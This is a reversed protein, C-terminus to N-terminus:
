RTRGPAATGGGHPFAAPEEASPFADALWAYTRLEDFLSRGLRNHFMHVHSVLIQGPVTATTARVAEVLESLATHWAGFPGHQTPDVPKAAGKTVRCMEDLQGETCGFESAWARWAAKSNTYFAAQEAPGGLAAAASVTARLALVSRAQPSSVHPLLALVLESSLQFLRETRPMLGAGGYRETEPEYVARHVGPPHLAQVDRDGGSENRALLRAESRYAEESIRSEEAVPQGATELRERLLREVRDYETPSLDGVRLRLHPGGQWYRIFFWPAGGLSRVTPGIVDRAVRDLMSPANSALHLHWASWRTPPATDGPAPRAPATQQTM